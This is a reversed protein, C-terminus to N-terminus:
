AMVPILETAYALQEKSNIGFAELPTMAITPAETPTGLAMAVLDTLYYEGQANKNDLKGLNELLWETQFVYVGVNLERINRETDTADKYERVAVVRGNEDRIVRGHAMFSSRWDNFDDVIVTAMSMVSGSDIHSKFLEKLTEATVFPSDGNLVAVHPASIYDEAVSVAHGTGLQPEQLAYNYSQGLVEKVLDAKYGVVITPKFPLQLQELSNLLYSIMPKGHLESLVKPNEGGMRTGKGAALIIPQVQM